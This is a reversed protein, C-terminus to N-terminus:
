KERIEFMGLIIEFNLPLNLVVWLKPFDDFIFLNHFIQNDKNEVLYRSLISLGYTM